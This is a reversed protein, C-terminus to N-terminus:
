DQVKRNLLGRKCLLVTKNIERDPQKSVEVLLRDANRKWESLSSGIGREFNMSLQNQPFALLIALYKNAYCKIKQHM